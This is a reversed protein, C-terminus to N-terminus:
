MAFSITLKNHTGYFIFMEDEENYEIESTDVTYVDSGAYIIINKGEIDMADPLGDTMIANFNDTELRISIAIKNEIATILTNIFHNRM